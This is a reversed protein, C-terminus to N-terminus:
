RMEDSYRGGEHEQYFPWNINSFILNNVCLYKFANWPHKLLYDKLKEM